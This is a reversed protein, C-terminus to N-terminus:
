SGNCARRSLAHLRMLGQCVAWGFVSCRSVAGVTGTDCACGIAVAVLDDAVVSLSALVPYSSM